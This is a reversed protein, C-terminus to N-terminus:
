ERESQIVSGLIFKFYFYSSKLNSQFEHPLDSGLGIRNSITVSSEYQTVRIPGRIIEIMLAEDSPHSPKERWKRERSKRELIKERKM